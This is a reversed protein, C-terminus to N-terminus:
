HTTPYRGAMLTSGQKGGLGSAERACVNRGSMISVRSLQRDAHCKERTIPTTVIGPGNWIVVLVNM